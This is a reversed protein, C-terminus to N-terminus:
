EYSIDEGLELDDEDEIVVSELYDEDKDTMFTNYAQKIDQKIIPTPNHKAVPDKHLILSATISATGFVFLMVILCILTQALM